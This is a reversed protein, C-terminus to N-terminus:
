KIYVHIKYYNARVLPTPTIGGVMRSNQTSLMHLCVTQKQYCRVISYILGSLGM